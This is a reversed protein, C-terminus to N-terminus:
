LYLVEFFNPIWARTDIPIDHVDLTPGVDHFSPSTM